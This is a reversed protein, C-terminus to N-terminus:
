ACIVAGFLPKVDILGPMVFCGSYDLIKDSRVRRPSGKEPGVYDLMGREDFVLIEDARTDDERGTFLQGCRVFTRM